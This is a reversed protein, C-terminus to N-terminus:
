IHKCVCWTTNKQKYEKFTITKVELNFKIAENEFDKESSSNMSEKLALRITGKCFKCCSMKISRSDEKTQLSNSNNVTGKYSHFGSPNYDCDELSVQLVDKAAQITKWTQKRCKDLYMCQWNLNNSTKTTARITGMSMQFAKESLKKTRILEAKLHKLQNQVENIKNLEYEYDM